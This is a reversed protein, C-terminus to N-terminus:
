MYENKDLLVSLKTFEFEADDLINELFDFSGFSILLHKIKELYKFYNLLNQSYPYKYFLEIFDSSQDKCCTQVLSSIWLNIKSASILSLNFLGNM